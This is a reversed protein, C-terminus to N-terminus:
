RKVRLGGGFHGGIGILLTHQGHTAIRAEATFRLHHFLEVGGRVTFLAGGRSGGRLPNYDYYYWEDGRREYIEVTEKYDFIDLGVGAGVFPNVKSGRRFNYDSLLSLGFLTNDYRHESHYTADEVVETHDVLTSHIRLALHFPKRRFNYRLEESIDWAFVAGQGSLMVGVKAEGGIEWRRVELEQDIEPRGTFYLQSPSEIDPQLDHAQYFARAQARHNTKTGYFYRYGEPVNKVGGGIVAGFTLAASCYGNHGVRVALGLRLHDIIEIGGRLTFLALRERESDSGEPPTICYPYSWHHFGYGVGVGVFPSVVYGRRFNYDTLLSYGFLPSGPDPGCKSHDSHPAIDEIAGIGYILMPLGLHHSELAIDFPARQFNYRLEHRVSFGGMLNDWGGGIHMIDYEVRRVIPKEDRTPATNDPTQSWVTTACILLTTCLLLLRKM